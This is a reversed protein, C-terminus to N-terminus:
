VCVLWCFHPGDDNCSVRPLKSIISLESFEHSAGSLFLLLPVAELSFPLDEPRRPVPKAQNFTELNNTHEILSYIVMEPIEPLPGQRKGARGAKYSYALSAV